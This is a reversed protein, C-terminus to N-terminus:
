TRRRRRLFAFGVLALLTASHRADARGGVRCGCGGGGVPPDDSWATAESMGGLGAVGPAGGRGAGGGSSSALGGTSVGGGSGSTGGSSSGGAGAGGVATRGGRGAAGGGGLPVGGTGASAGAGGLGGSGSGGSSSGAAGASGADGGLGGAGASSGGAGVGSSGGAGVGSSGGAGRGGAGGVAVMGPDSAADLGFFKSVQDAPVALAHPQGAESVAEVRAIGNADEYRTRTYGAEPQNTETSSPMESVGLVNTWQKIEEGFNKYDLTEDATGHWIQVRPRYGTYSANAARVLDGWAAGTKTIKGDACDSSWGSTGAFCAYPVGAFIAGGQFVEPYAGLLVNTMMAGSSTGTAYVRKPDASYQTVAYKVMNVVSNSDGGGDHSLSQTSHVDWCGDSSSTEPYIVVFGYKDAEGKFGTGTFMASASGSCYHLVVLIPPSQTKSDPVYVWMRANTPNAGFGNVQTLSAAASPRTLALSTAVSGLGLLIRLASRDRLRSLRCRPTTDASTAM